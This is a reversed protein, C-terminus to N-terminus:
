GSDDFEQGVPAPTTATPPAPEPTIQEPQRSPAEEQQEPRWNREAAEQEREPVAQREAEHQARLRARDEQVAEKEAAELKERNERALERKRAREQAKERRAKRLAQPEAGTPGEEGSLAPLSSATRLALPRADVTASSAPTDDGAVRAIGFACAFAVAGVAVLTV